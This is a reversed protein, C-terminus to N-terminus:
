CGGSFVQYLFWIFLALLIWATAGAIDYDHIM